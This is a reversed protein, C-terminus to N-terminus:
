AGQPRQGGLPAAPRPLPGADPRARASIAHALGARRGLAPGCGPRRRRRPVALAGAGRAMEGLAVGLRAVLEEGGRARAAEADLGVDMGQGAAVALHEGHVDGAVPRHVRLRHEDDAAGAVADLAKAARPHLHGQQAIGVPMPGGVVGADGDEVDVAEIRVAERPPPSRGVLVDVQVAVEAVEGVGGGAL